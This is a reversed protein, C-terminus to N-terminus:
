ADPGDPTVVVATTAQPALNLDWVRATCDDSGSLAYAGNPTYGLQVCLVADHHGIMRRMCSGDRADYVRLERSVTCTVLLASDRMWQLEVVGAGHQCVHRLGFTDLDWVCLRGDMGCTAALQLSGCFGASEVSAEHASLQALVKGSEVHALKLKGDDMGFLIVPHGGHAALCTIM